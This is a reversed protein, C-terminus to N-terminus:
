RKVFPRVTSTGEHLLRLTYMGAAFERTDLTTRDTIIRSRALVRGTVDVIEVFSGIAVGKLTLRDSVPNPWIILADTVHHTVGVNTEVTFVAENTTVPSLVVGVIGRAQIIQALRRETMGRDSTWFEELAFGVQEARHRAGAIVKRLFPDGAM